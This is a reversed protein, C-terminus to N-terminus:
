LLSELKVEIEKLVQTLAQKKVSADTLAGEMRSLKEDFLRTGTVEKLM